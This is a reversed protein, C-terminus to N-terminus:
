TMHPESWTDKGTGPLGSLLVVEGWSADYLSHNPAVNKGSLYAHKTYVDCFPYPRNRCQADEAILRALDVKELLEQVDPAIRGRVDAESLLCLLNWSFDPVLEGYSAIERVRREPDKLDLVRTPLMHYRVLFCILERLAIREKSGCLGCTKWLYERAMQSGTSAHHPSIWEGDEMKTTRIKGIDHFIGAAFVGIKQIEPLKEFAPLRVLKECVMQTHVYVTGEGHFVPNQPIEKMQPLFFGLCSSAIANWDLGADLSGSFVPILKEIENEFNM